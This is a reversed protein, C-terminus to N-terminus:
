DQKLSFSRGSVAVPGLAAIRDRIADVWPVSRGSRPAAASEVRPENFSWTVHEGPEDLRRDAITALDALLRDRAGPSLPAPVSVLLITQTPPPGAVTLVRERNGDTAIDVLEAPGDAGFILLYDTWGPPTTAVAAIPTQIALRDSADLLVRRGGDLRYLRLDAREFGRELGSLRTDVADLDAAARSDDTQGAVLTLALRRADELARRAGTRDGSWLLDAEQVRAALLDRAARADYVDGESLARLADIALQLERRAEDRDGAAERLAALRARGVAAERRVSPADEGRASLWALEADALGHSAMAGEFESREAQLRALRMYDLVLLRRYSPDEPFRRANASDLALARDLSAEAGDLDGVSLALDSLPRHIGAALVQPGPDAPDAASLAAAISLGEGYHREASAVDRQDAFLDAVAAHTGALRERADSVLTGSSVVGELIALASRYSELARAPEGLNPGGPGGWIDGLRRLGEATELALANDDGAPLDELYTGLAAVLQRRAETSGPLDQLWRDLDFTAGALTRARHAIDRDRERERASALWLQAFTAAAVVLAVAAVGASMSVARNRRVFRRGREWASVPRATVPRDELYALLDDSLQEVSRYRARRDPHLTKLVVADLDGALTRAAGTDGAMLSPLAHAATNTTTTADSGLPKPPHGTLLEHLVVGLSYVDMGVHATDGELQEPSAYGPTARRDAPDTRASAELGAPTLPKAIGFDLLKPTGAADVLINGPKLDRHVVLCRHAESVADCVRRFLAIRDRLSLAREEAHRTVPLGDVFEMVFYLQNRDTRGADILEAICPHSLRALVRRELDFRAVAGDDNGRITKIAVLREFAGDARRALYVRGM